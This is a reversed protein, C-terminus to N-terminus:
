FLKQVEQWEHLLEYMASQGKFSVFYNTDYSPHVMQSSNIPQELAIGDNNVETRTEKLAMSQGSFEM